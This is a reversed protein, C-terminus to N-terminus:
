AATLPSHFGVVDDAVDEVWTACGLAEDEGTALEPGLAELGLWDAEVPDGVVLGGKTRDAPEPKTAFFYLLASIHPGSFSSSKIRSSSM